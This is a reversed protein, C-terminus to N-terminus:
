SGEVMSARAKLVNVFYTMPFKIAYDVRSVPSKLSGIIKGLLETKSPLQALKELNAKEYLVKDLFAIKFTVSPDKKAFDFIAKLGASWDGEMNVVATSNRIPLAKAKFESLEEVKEIAKELLSTKVVSMRANAKRLSKRLTELSIHSTKEFGLLTVNQNERLQNTLQDVVAVKKANPM